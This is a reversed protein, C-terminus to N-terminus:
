VLEEGRLLLREEGEWFVCKGSTIHISSGNSSCVALRVKLVKQAADADSHATSTRRTKMIKMRREKQKTRADAHSSVMLVIDASWLFASAWCETVSLEWPFLVQSGLTNLGLM